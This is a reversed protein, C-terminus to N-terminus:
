VRVQTNTGCVRRWQVHAQNFGPAHIQGIIVDDMRDEIIIFAYTTSGKAM